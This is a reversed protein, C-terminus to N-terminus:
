GLGEYDPLRPIYTRGVFDMHDTFSCTKNQRFILPIFVHDTSQLDNIAVWERFKPKFDGCTNMRVMSGMNSLVNTPM